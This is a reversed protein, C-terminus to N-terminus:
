LSLNLLILLRFGNTPDKTPLTTFNSAEGSACINVKGIKQAECYAKNSWIGSIIYDSVQSQPLFNLAIAAFQLSAGGPLFLM